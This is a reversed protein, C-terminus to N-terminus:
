EQKFLLSFPMFHQLPVYEFHILNNKVLPFEKTIEKAEEVGSCELMIVAGPTNDARLYFERLVGKEYLGWAMKAEEKLHPALDDFTVGENLRDYALIKM